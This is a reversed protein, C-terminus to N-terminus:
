DCLERLFEEVDHTSLLVNEAKAEKVVRKAMEGIVSDRGAGACLNARLEDKLERQVITDALWEEADWYRPLEGLEEELDAVLDDCQASNKWAMLAVVDAEREHLVTAVDGEDVDNPVDLVVCNHLDWIAPRAPDGDNTVYPTVERTVPDIVIRAVDGHGAIRGVGFNYRIAYMVEEKAQTRGECTEVRSRSAPRSTRALRVAESKDTM